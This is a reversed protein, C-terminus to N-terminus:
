GSQDLEAVVVEYEGMRDLEFALRDGITQFPVEAKDWLRHLRKVRAGAPVQWQVRVARLPEVRDTRYLSDGHLSVLHLIRRGPQEFLTVGVPADARIVVPLKEGAAWRVANFLLGEIGPDLHECQFADLRGPLYVVRGAGFRHVVVAPMPKDGSSPGAATALTTAGSLRVAVQPEDCALEDSPRLREVVPHSMGQSDIAITRKAAPLTGQLHVGFVDALAFDGRPTGKEDYRSTEYTAVLGGGSAVFRRVAEVQEDSMCAENALALVKLGDLSRHFGSRTATVIPVGSRLLASYFGVYPALFLDSRPRIEKATARIVRTQAADHVVSRPFALFRV